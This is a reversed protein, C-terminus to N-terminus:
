LFEVYDDVVWGGGGEVVGVGVDVEFEYVEFVFVGVEGFEGVEWGFGVFVVDYCDVMEWCLVM